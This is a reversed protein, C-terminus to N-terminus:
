RERGSGAGGKWDDTGGDDGGGESRIGIYGGYRPVSDLLNKRQYLVAAIPLKPLGDRQGM